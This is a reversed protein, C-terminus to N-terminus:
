RWSYVGHIQLRVFSIRWGLPTAAASLRSQLTKDKWLQSHNRRDKYAKGTRPEKSTNPGHSNTRAHPLTSGKAQAVVQEAHHQQPSLELSTQRISHLRAWIWHLKKVDIIDRQLQIDKGRRSLPTYGAGVSLNSCCRAIIAIHLGLYAQVVNRPYRIPEEKTSAQM